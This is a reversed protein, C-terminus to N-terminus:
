ELNRMLSRNTMEKPKPLGMLELITPAVAGLNEKADIIKELANSHFTLSTKILDKENDPTVLIFPVPNLTHVSEREGLVEQNISVMQEANGHDATIITAGGFKNNIKVIQGVLQDLIQVAMGVALIDGTHALMDVNAFNLCIFDYKKSEIAEIATKAVPKASMAPKQAYSSVNPSSIIKREEGPFTVDEGGNFFTTVHSLKESEAIKLQKCNLSSLYQSLNNPYLTSEFVVKAPLNKDYNIFTSFYLDNLKKPRWLFQHFNPDLFVASIQQARDERFNFFIVADGNKIPHIKGDQGKILAPEIYEDTLNRRYNASIAQEIKDFIEGKGETLCEYYKKIKEWHEDRDMAISRGAVTSFQGIKLLKIKEQIKQVFQLSQTAGSDTGDTIADIYVQDFNQRHALDLLSLLHNINSHVGGDSILGMLHVNSHNKKAWEFAEVLIKNKFFKGTQISQNIQTYFSKVPRGAGMM